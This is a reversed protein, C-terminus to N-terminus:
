AWDSKQFADKQKLIDLECHEDCYKLWLATLSEAQKKGTILKEM